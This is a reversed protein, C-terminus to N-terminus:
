ELSYLKAIRKIDVEHLSPDEELESATALMYQEYKMLFVNINKGANVLRYRKNGIKAFDLQRMDIKLGDGTLKLVSEKKTWTEYIYDLQKEESLQEFKMLEKEAFIRKSLSLNLGQIKEIDIGINASSIACVVYDHSHSLNFHVEHGGLVPKGKEDVEPLVPLKISPIHQRLAYDLLLGAACIQNKLRESKTAKIRAIREGNLHKIYANHSFDIKLIYIKKM